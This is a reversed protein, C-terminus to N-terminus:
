APRRDPSPGKSWVRGHGRDAVAALVPLGLTREVDRVTVFVAQTAIRLALVAAALMAGLLVGAVTLPLRLSTGQLAAEAPQVVRINASAERSAVSALRTEEANQAITRYSASLIDREAQLKRRDGSLSILEQVRDQLHTQDDVIVRQKARLGTARSTLLVKQQFLENYVSNIGTRRTDEERAPVKRLDQQMAAIQGTINQVLPFDDQYRGKVDAEQIQLQALRDTLSRARIGIGTEAYIEVEKPLTALTEDLTSVQADLNRIESEIGTKEDGLDSIRRLLVSFQQGIDSIGHALDFDVVKKEADSLRASMEQRKVDPATKMQRNFVDARYAIYQRVFVDLAHLAVDRDGNRLSLEIVNSQPVVSVRLDRGFATIANQRMQALTGHMRPYLVTAGVDEVVEEALAPSKLIELEGQMIQDRDLVITNGNQQDAPRFVYENGYLVLLRAQATYITHAVMGALGGLLCPLVFALVMAKRYYFLPTLLDRPSWKHYSASRAILRPQFKGTM